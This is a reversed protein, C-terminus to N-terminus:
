RRGIGFRTPSHDDSCARDGAEVDLDKTVWTQFGPAKATICYNGVPLLTFIYEGSGNSQATRAENTGLNILTVNANPVVAGTSDTVTGLIDATTLQALAAWSYFMLIALFVIAPRFQQCSTRRCQRFHRTTGNEQSRMMDM